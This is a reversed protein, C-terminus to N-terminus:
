ESYKSNKPISYFVASDESYVETRNSVISLTILIISFVHRNRILIYSM